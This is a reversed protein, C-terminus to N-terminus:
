SASCPPRACVAAQLPPPLFSRRPLSSPALLSRPLSPFSSLAAHSSPRSEPVSSATPSLAPTTISSLSLSSLSRHLRLPQVAHLRPNCGPIPNCGCSSWLRWRGGVAVPGCVGYRAVNCVTHIPPREGRAEHLPERTQCSGPTRVRNGMNMDSCNWVPTDQGWRCRNKCLCEGVTDGQLAGFGAAALVVAPRWQQAVPLVVHLAASLLDGDTVGSAGWTINLSTGAAEGTGTDDM